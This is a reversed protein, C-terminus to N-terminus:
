FGGPLQAMPNAARCPGESYSPRTARGGGGQQAPSGTCPGHQVEMSVSRFCRGYFAATGTPAAHERRGAGSQAVPDAAPLRAKM